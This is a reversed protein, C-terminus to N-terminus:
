WGSQQGHKRKLHKNANEVSMNAIELRFFPFAQWGDKAYHMVIIIGSVITQLEYLVINNDSKSLFVVDGIVDCSFSYVQEERETRSPDLVLTGCSKVKDEGQYVSVDMGSDSRLCYEWQAQPIMNEQKQKNQQPPISIKFFSIVFFAIFVFSIRSGEGPESCLLALERLLKDQLLLLDKYELDVHKGPIWTKDM